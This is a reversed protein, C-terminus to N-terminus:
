KFKVRCVEERGVQSDRLINLIWRAYSFNHYYLNNYDMENTNYQMLKHLVTLCAIYEDKTSISSLM